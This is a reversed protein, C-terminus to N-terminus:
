LLFEGLQQGLAPDPDGLGRQGAVQLLEARDPQPARAARQDVRQGVVRAAGARPRRRRRRRLGGPPGRRPLQGAGAAASRSPAEPASARTAASSSTDASALALRTTSRVGAPAACNRAEAMSWAPQGDM